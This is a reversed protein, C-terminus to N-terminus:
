VPGCISINLLSGYSPCHSLKSNKSSSICNFPNGSGPFNNIKQPSTKSKIPSRKITSEFNLIKPLIGPFIMTLRFPNTKYKGKTPQTMKLIM